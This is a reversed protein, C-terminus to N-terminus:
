VKLANWEKSRKLAATHFSAAKVRVTAVELEYDSFELFAKDVGELNRCMAMALEVQSQTASVAV